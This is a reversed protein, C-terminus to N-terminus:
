RVVAMTCGDCICMHDHMVCTIIMADMCERTVVMMMYRAFVVLVSMCVLGITNLLCGHMRVNARGGVHTWCAGVVVACAARVDIEVEVGASM